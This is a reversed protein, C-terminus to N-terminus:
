NDPPTIFPIIFSVIIDKSIKKELIDIIKLSYEYLKYEKDKVFILKRINCLIDYSYENKNLDINFYILSSFVQCNNFLIKLNKDLIFKKGKKLNNLNIYEILNDNIFKILFSIPIYKKNKKLNYKKKSKISEENSFAEILKSCENLNNILKININMIISSNTSIKVIDNSIKVIDNSIKVIDNSIKKLKYELSNINKIDNMLKKSKYELSNIKKTKFFKNLDDIVLNLKYLHIKSYFLDDIDKFNENEKSIKTLFNFIIKNIYINGVKNM